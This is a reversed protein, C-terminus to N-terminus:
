QFCATLWIPALHLGGSYPSNNETIEVAYPDLKTRLHCTTTGLYWRGAQCSRRPALVGRGVFLTPLASVEGSVPEQLGGVYEIRVDGDFRILIM